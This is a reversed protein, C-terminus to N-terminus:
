KIANIIKKKVKSVHKIDFTGFFLLFDSVANDRVSGCLLINGVAVLVLVLTESNGDGKNLVAFPVVRIARKIAYIVGESASIEFIKNTFLGRDITPKILVIAEWLLDHELLVRALLVRALMFKFRSSLSVRLSDSTRKAFHRQASRWFSVFRDSFWVRFGKWSM